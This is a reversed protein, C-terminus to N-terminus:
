ATAKPGLISGELGALEDIYERVLEGPQDPFSAISDQLQLVTFVYSVALLVLAFSLLGAALVISRHVKISKGVPRSEEVLARRRLVPVVLQIWGFYFLSVAHAASLVVAAMFGASLGAEGYFRSAVAAFIVAAFLLWAAGALQKVLLWFNM